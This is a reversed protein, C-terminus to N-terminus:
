NRGTKEHETLYHYLAGYLNADSQYHCSVITPDAAHLPNAQKLEKVTQQIRETVIPQASIGGGIAFVEPDFIYQLNLIQIAISLCFEDFFQNAAADGANIFEFAKKGDTVDAVEKEKNIHKIMNVASGTGGFFTAKKTEADVADMVYSLEGALLNRGHHVKGDMLIGGGVGSGLVLVIADRKDKLSGLWLEALAACRGDNEIAVAVEYREKLKAKMNVGHQFPFSGGNYIVGTDTDVAGPTSVAIGRVDESYMADISAFLVKDFAEINVRSSPRSDKKIIKGGRDMLATKVLTGGIDVVLYM